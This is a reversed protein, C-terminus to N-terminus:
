YGKLLMNLIVCAIRAKFTCVVVPQVWKVPMDTKVQQQFPSHPQVLPQLLAHMEKLGSEDFGGGALAIYVLEDNEYVGLVLSGFNTRSGRPETYGCVIAEQQLRITIKM